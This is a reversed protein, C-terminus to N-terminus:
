VLEEIAELLVGEPSRLVGVKRGEYICGDRVTPPTLWPGKILSLNPHYLSCIAMGLPLHGVQKQRPKAAHPYQDFEICFEGDKRATCLRHLTDSPLSFAQNLMRYPIEFAPDLTLGLQQAFWQASSAMDECGLVAIFLVDVPAKAQPLGSGPGGQLIQTLYIIEGDPSRVQMPHITPLGPNAAPPGIIEFPGGRLRECTAQVDEVCLEIAAWGFSQLPQFNSVETSQVLRIDVSRGSAPRVVSYPQGASKEEGWSLALEPSILGTEVLQYGLWDVYRAAADAANSVVFTASRLPNM